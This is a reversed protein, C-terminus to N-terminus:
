REKGVILSKIRVVLRHTLRIIGQAMGTNAFFTLVALGASAMGAGLMFTAGAPNQALVCGVAVPVSAVTVAAFSAAVAYACAVLSWIVIYIALLIAAAVIVLPVWVISTLVLLVIEWTKLTRRPQMRQAVLMPLPIEVVIQEALQDVSGVSAIAEEETMGELMRDDIMEEYFAVREDLDDPALYSIRQRLASLFEDRRMGM